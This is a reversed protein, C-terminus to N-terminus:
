QKLAFPRGKFFCCLWGTRLLLLTLYCFLYERLRPSVEQYNFWLFYSLFAGGLGLLGVQLVTTVVMEGRGLTVTGVRGARFLGLLVGQGGAVV